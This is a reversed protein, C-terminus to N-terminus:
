KENYQQTDRVCWICWISFVISYLVLEVSGVVLITAVYTTWGSPHLPLQLALDSGCHLQARRQARFQAPFHRREGKKPVWICSFPSWLSSLCCLFFIFDSALSFLWLLFWLSFTSDVGLDSSASFLSTFEFSSFALFENARRKKLKTDAVHLLLLM